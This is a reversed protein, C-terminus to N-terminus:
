RLKVHIYTGGLVLVLGIGYLLPCSWRQEAGLYDHPRQSQHISHGHKGERGVGEGRVGETEPAASAQALVTDQGQRAKGVHSADLCQM